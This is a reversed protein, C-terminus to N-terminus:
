FRLSLLSNVYHLLVSLDTEPMGVVSFLGGSVKSFIWSIPFDLFGFIFAVLVVMMIIREYKMVAFYWKTPLFAYFIRSGDFPPVPILNFIALSINLIVGMYLLYVVLSMATFAVSGTFSSGFSLSILYNRMEADYMNCIPTLVLRLIVLHILALLLNSLPGAAGALAMDRKPKKFYRTNIPVPKAWGVRFLVMCLFGLPDIHKAPNLTLRGLSRATPDGLKYAVYGHAAEHFSLAFFVIPLRLLYFPLQSILNSFFSM